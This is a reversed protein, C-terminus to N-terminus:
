MKKIISNDQKKGLPYKFGLLLGLGTRGGNRILLQIFASSNNEWKKQIGGGYEVFPYLSVEPLAINNISTYENSLIPFVMNVILFPKWDNKLNAYARLSPIVQIANLTKTKYFNDNYDRYNFSKAYTYSMIYNPQITINNKLNKNYGFRIAANTSISNIDKSYNTSTKGGGTDIAFFGFFDKNYISAGWGLLGANSFSEEGEYVQKNGRYGTYGIYAAQWDDKLDKLDTEFGALTGYMTLNVHQGNGINVKDYSTYPRIWLGNRDDRLLLPSYLGLITANTFAILNDSTEYKIVGFDDSSEKELSYSEAFVAPKINFSLIFFLIILFNKNM